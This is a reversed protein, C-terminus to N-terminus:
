PAAGRVPVALAPDALGAAAFAAARATCAGCSGCPTKGGAYCSYTLGFPVGLEFGLAVVGAKTMALFPAELRLPRSPRCAAVAWALHRVFAPRCDPYVEADSATAGYAVADADSTLAHAVALSVLLLNRGPVVTVAQAPGDAPGGPLPVSRDTLVPNGALRRFCPVEAVTLPLGPTGGLGDLVERAADLERRHRQGYDVALPLVEEGGAYLSYLLVASDLGGSLLVVTKM